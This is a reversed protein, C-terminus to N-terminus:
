WLWVQTKAPCDRNGRQKHCPQNKGQAWYRRGEWNLRLWAGFGFDWNEPESGEQRQTQSAVPTEVWRSCCPHQARNAPLSLSCCGGGLGLFPGALHLLLFSGRGGQPVAIKGVLGLVMKDPLGFTMGCHSHHNIPYGIQPKWRSLVFPRASPTHGAVPLLCGAQWEPDPWVGGRSRGKQPHAPPLFPWLPLRFANMCARGLFLAQRRSPVMSGAASFIGERETLYEPMERLHLPYIGSTVCM